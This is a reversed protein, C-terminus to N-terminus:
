KGGNEKQGKKLIIPCEKKVGRIIYRHRFFDDPNLELAYLIKCVVTFFATLFNRESTEFKQYTSQPIGSKHAVDKQTLNIYRRMEQLLTIADLVDDSLPKNKMRM